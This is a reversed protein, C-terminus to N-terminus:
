FCGRAPDFAWRGSLAEVGAFPPTLYVSSDFGATYASWFGTSGDTTLMSLMTNNNPLNILFTRTEFRGARCQKVFYAPNGSPQFLMEINLVECGAVGACYTAPTEAVAGGVLTAVSLVNDAFM